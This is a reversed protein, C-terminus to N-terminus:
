VTSTGKHTVASLNSCVVLDWGPFSCVRLCVPQSSTSRVNPWDVMSIKEVIAEAPPADYNEGFDDASEMIEDRADFIRVFCDAVKAILNDSQFSDEFCDLSIEM